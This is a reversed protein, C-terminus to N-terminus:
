QVHRGVFGLGTSTTNALGEAALAGWKQSACKVWLTAVASESGVPVPFLKPGSWVPL